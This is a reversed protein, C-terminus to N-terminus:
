DFIPNLIARATLPTHPSAMWRALWLRRGTSARTPHPVELARRFLVAPVAPQVEDAPKTPDGRKLVRTIPAQPGNEFFVYGRPLECPHAEHLRCILAASAVAGGPGFRMASAPVNAAVLRLQQRHYAKLERVSGIERDLEDRKSTIPRELSAFVSLMSYYDRQTFPEFKHDHCRACRLTLGLFASATTGLVDDLQDYRDVLPEAPEDDWTGLRLFGTAI